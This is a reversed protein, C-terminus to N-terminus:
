ADSDRGPQLPKFAFTYFAGGLVAGVVPGLTYIWWHSWAVSGWGAAFSVLRPGLDRAPNMGCGTMPGFITILVAVVSGILVPAADRPVTGRPDTLAFVLFALVSTAWVEALVAGAPSLLAATPAMGFAGAFTATSTGRVIKQVSEVSAIGAAMLAYNVAGAFTAGCVQAGVYPALEEVPFGANAALSCSIAPNLHAGSIDRTAFIALAVSVGWITALGFLGMGSSAYKCAAVVGCGGHVIIGTGVAEAMCRQALTPQAATEQPEPQREECRAPARAGLSSSLAFAGVGAITAM